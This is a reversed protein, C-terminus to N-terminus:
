PLATAFTAGPQGMVREIIPPGHVMRLRNRETWYPRDVIKWPSRSTIEGTDEDLHTVRQAPARFAAFKINRSCSFLRKHRLHENGPERRATAEQTCYKAIYDAVNETEVPQVDVIYSGGSAKRWMASLKGPTIDLSCVLHLHAYGAKTHERIWVYSYAGYKHWLNQNLKNWALTIAVDSWRAPMTQTWITLTWFHNLNHRGMALKIERKLWAARMPGCLICVWQACLAPIIRMNGADDRRMMTRVGCSGHPLGWSGDRSAALYQRHYHGPLKPVYPGATPRFDSFNQDPDLAVFGTRIIAPLSM